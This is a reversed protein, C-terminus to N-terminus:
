DLVGSPRSDSHETDLSFPKTTMSLYDGVLHRLNVGRDLDQLDESCVIWQEDSM